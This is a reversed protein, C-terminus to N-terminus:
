SFTRNAIRLHSGKRGSAPDGISAWIAGHLGSCWASPISPLTCSNCWARDSSCRSTLTSLLPPLYSIITAGPHYPHIDRYSPFRSLFVFVLCVTGHGGCETCRFLTPLHFLCLTLIVLALFRTCRVSALGNEPLKRLSQTNFGPNPSSHGSYTCSSGLGPSLRWLPLLIPHYLAYRPPSDDSFVVLSKSFRM